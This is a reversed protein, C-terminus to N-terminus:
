LSDICAEVTSYRKSAGGSDAISLRYYSGNYHKTCVAGKKASKASLTCEDLSSFDFGLTAPFQRKLSYIIFKVRGQDANDGSYYSCIVGEKANFSGVAQACESRTM